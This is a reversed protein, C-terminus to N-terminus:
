EVVEGFYDPLRSYRNKRYDYMVLESKPDLTVHKEGEFAYLGYWEMAM